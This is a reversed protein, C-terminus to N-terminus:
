EEKLTPVIHTGKKSYHIKFKNTLTEVGTKDNISVRIEKDVSLMEKRDWEGKSNTKMRRTGAYKNILEQTEEM